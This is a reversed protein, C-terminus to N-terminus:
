QLDVELNNCIKKIVVLFTEIEEESLNKKLINESSDLVKKLKPRFEEAKDTLYILNKRQDNPDTEKTIFGRNKLKKLSRGVAAKNLNYMECINTQCIGDQRYLTALLLIQGHSIDYSDLKKDLLAAHARRAISLYKGIPEDNM